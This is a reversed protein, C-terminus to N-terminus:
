AVIGTANGIAIVVIMVACIIGLAKLWLTVFERDRYRDLAPFRRRLRRRDLMGFSILVVMGNVMLFYELALFWM